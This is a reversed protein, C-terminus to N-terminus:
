LDETVVEPLALNLNETNSWILLYLCNEFRILYFILNLAGGEFQKLNEFNGGEDM